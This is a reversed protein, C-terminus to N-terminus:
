TISMTEFIPYDTIYYEGGHIIDNIDVRDIAYSIAKRIAMGKTISPDNNCLEWNGTFDRTPRM